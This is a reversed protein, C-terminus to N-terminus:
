DCAEIKALTDAKMVCEIEAKTSTDMCMIVADAELNELDEDLIALMEADDGLEKRLVAFMHDIAAVCTAKDVGEAHPKEHIEQEAEQEAKDCLAIAELSPAAMICAGAEAFVQPGLKLREKEIEFKCTEMFEAELTKDATEGLEKVLVTWVHACITADSPTADGSALRALASMAGKAAALSDDHVLSSALHDLMSGSDKGTDFHPVDAPVPKAADPAVAAEPTPGDPTPAVADPTPAAPKEDGVTAHIVGGMGRNDAPAEAELPEAVPAPKEDQKAAAQKANAENDEPKAEASKDEGGKDCAVLGLALVCCSITLVVRYM